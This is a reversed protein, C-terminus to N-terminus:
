DEKKRGQSQTLLSKAVLAIFPALLMGLIGASKWGVYTAFLALLPHLGLSKGILRPEAIQRVLACVGYLILLGFGLYYAKQLLMVAAWPLLVTGIGLIPLLDILATVTALLFAYPVGLILFGVFLVAFIILMLLLYAKVYRWSIQRGRARWQPLRNQVGRPLLSVVASAIRERDICFYFGAMVTVVTGLLVSPLAGLVKAAIAPLKAATETLAKSILDTVMAYFRERFETAGQTREAFPDKSATREELVAMWEHAMEEFSGYEATLRELLTKLEGLIRSVGFAILCILLLLLLLFLVAACLKQSLHLKKALKEAPRAVCLSLGWAILFPLLIPLVLRIGFFLVVGGLVVCLLVMAWKNWKIDETM